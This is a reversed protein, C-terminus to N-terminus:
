LHNDILDERCLKSFKGRDAREYQQSNIPNKLAAKVTQFSVTELAIFLALIAALINRMWSGRKGSAENGKLAPTPAFATHDNKTM